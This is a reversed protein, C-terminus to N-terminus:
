WGPLINYLKADLVIGCLQLTVQIYFSTWLLKIYFHLPDDPVLPIHEIFIAEESGNSYEGKMHVYSVVRGDESLSM